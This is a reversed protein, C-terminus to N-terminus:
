SRRIDNAAGSDDYPTWAEPTISEIEDRTMDLKGLMAYYYLCIGYFNVTTQGFNGNNLIVLGSSLLM